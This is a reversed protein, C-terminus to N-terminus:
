AATGKECLMELWANKGDPDIVSRINYTEGTRANKAAWDTTVQETNNSKRVTINVPNRGAIRAAFVDEGGLKPKIQAAVAPFAPNPDFGGEINGYGDDGTVRRYFAVRDQLDAAQPM